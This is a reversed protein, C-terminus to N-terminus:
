IAEIFIISFSTKCLLKRLINQNKCIIICNCSSINVICNLYFDFDMTHIDDFIRIKIKKFNFLPYIFCITVFTDKRIKIWNTDYLNRELKCYLLIYGTYIDVIVAFTRRPHGHTTFIDIKLFEFHSKRRYGWRM